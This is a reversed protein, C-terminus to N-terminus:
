YEIRSKLVTNLDTRFNLGSGKFVTGFNAQWFLERRLLDEERGVAEVAYIELFPVDVGEPHQQRLVHQTLKCKNERRLKIESKHQAWRFRLNNTSGTYYVKHVKCYLLYIVM